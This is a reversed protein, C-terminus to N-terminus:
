VNDNTYNIRSSVTVCNGMINWVEDTNREETLYGNRTDKNNSIEEQIDRSTRLTQETELKETWVSFKFWSFYTVQHLNVFYMKACRVNSDKKDHRLKDVPM